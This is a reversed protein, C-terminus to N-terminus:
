IATVRRSDNWKATWIKAKAMGIIWISMLTVVPVVVWLLALLFFDLQIEGNLISARVLTSLFAFLFFYAFSWSILWSLLLVWFVTGLILKGLLFFHVPCVCSLFQMTAPDRIRVYGQGYSHHSKSM